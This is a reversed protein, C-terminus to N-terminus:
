EASVLPDKVVCTYILERKIRNGNNLHTGPAATGSHGHIGLLVPGGVVLVGTGRTRGRMGVYTLPTRQAM